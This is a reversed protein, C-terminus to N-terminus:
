SQGEKRFYEVDNRTPPENGGMRWRFNTGGEFSGVTKAERLRIAHARRIDTMDMIHGWVPDSPQPSPASPSFRPISHSPPASREESLVGMYPTGSFAFTNEATIRKKSRKAAPLKM